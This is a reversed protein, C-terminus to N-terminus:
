AHCDIMELMRSCGNADCVAAAAISKRRYSTVDKLIELINGRLMSPAGAEYNLLWIADAERLARSVTAQNEAVPIVIAPLGLACREWATTGGGGIALDADVMLTSMNEVDSIVQVRDGMVAAKEKIAPLIPASSGVVVDICGDFEIGKLACLVRLALDRTDSIGFSILIKNVRKMLGRKRLAEDRQALFQPRLLAYQPGLILKCNQSLLGEYDSANRGLTQDLLFDSDHPRNALDDIVLIRKFQSRCAREFNIDLEYHDVVLLDSKVGNFAALVECPDKLRNNSLIFCSPEVEVLNQIYQMTDSHVVFRCDWGSGELARALTLCRMAHGGGVEPGADFRFVVRRVM